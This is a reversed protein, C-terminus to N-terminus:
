LTLMIHKVVAYADSENDGVINRYHIYQGIKAESPDFTLRTQHLVHFQFRASIGALTRGM